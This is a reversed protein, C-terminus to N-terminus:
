FTKKSSNSFIFSNKLRNTKCVPFNFMRRNRLGIDTENLKPVLYHLKHNPDSCIEEFLKNTLYERREYSSLLNSNKLADQYNINPFIIQMARKQIRELEDSLYTPLGNHFVPCAYETIPRICTKYFTLLEKEAVKARKLQRLFYLRTSAKKFIEEIHHNWKLNNSINLGLLKITTVIEIPKDNIVIPAYEPHNQTFSIRLEKCKKENFQFKNRYTKETLENVINQIKSTEGKEVMEAATTDDVYKWLDTNTTDIDDIMLVFLWPGLKTGQPVGAPVNKWESKCDQSLKVRQRRCKLFDVIWSVINHPINLDKLKRVLINHDILDFAKRFDFVVVRVTSGTGDTYKSWTHIM